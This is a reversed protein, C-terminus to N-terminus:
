QVALIEATRRRAWTEADLVAALDPDAVLDHEAVVRAVTDVI